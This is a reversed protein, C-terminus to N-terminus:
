QHHCVNNKISLIDGNIYDAIFLNYHTKLNVRYEMIPKYCHSIDYSAKLANYGQIFQSKHVLMEAKKLMLYADFPYKKQIYDTVEFAVSRLNEQQTPSIDLRYSQVLLYVVLEKALKLNYTSVLKQPHQLFHNLIITYTNSTDTNDSIIPRTVMSVSLVNFSMPVILIVTGISLLVLIIRKLIM